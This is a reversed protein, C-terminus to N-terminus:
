SMSTTATPDKLLSKPMSPTTSCLRASSERSSASRKWLSNVLWSCRTLAPVSSSPLSDTTMTPPPAVPTSSAASM